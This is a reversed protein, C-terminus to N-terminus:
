TSVGSEKKNVLFMAAKSPKNGDISSFDMENKGSSIMKAIGYEWFQLWPQNGITISNTFESGNKNGTIHISDLTRIATFDAGNWNNKYVWKLCYYNSDLFCIETREKYSLVIKIEKEVRSESYTFSHKDKGFYENYAQPFVNIVLTGICFMSAILFVKSKIVKV